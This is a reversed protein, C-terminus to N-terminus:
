NIPTNPLIRYWIPFGLAAKVMNNGPETPFGSNAWGVRTSTKIGKMFSAPVEKGALKILEPKYDYLDITSPAGDMHLWIISKVKAPFHPQKPALPDVLDAAFAASIVGGGPLLGSLAFSGATLGSKLLFDRRTLNKM